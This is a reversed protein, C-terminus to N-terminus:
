SNSCLANIKLFSCNLTLLVIRKLTLHNSALTIRGSSVKFNLLDTLSSQHPKPSSRKLTLSRCTMPWQRADRRNKTERLSLKHHHTLSRLDTNDQHRMMAFAVQSPLINRDLTLCLMPQNLNHRESIFLEWIYPMM